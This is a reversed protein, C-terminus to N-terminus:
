KLSAYGSQLESAGGVAVPEGESVGHTIEIFQDDTRGIQVQRRAFVGDPQRVFVYAGSGVNVVGDRPVVPALSGEGLRVTLRAMMGALLPQSAPKTLEVWVSLTRDADGLV